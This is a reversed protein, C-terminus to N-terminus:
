KCEWALNELRCNNFDGDLHLSKRGQPSGGVFARLVLAGVSTRERTSPNALTWYEIYLRGTKGKVPAKISKRKLTRVRGLNSVEYPICGHCGAAADALKWIETTM